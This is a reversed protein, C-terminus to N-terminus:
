CSFEATKAKEAEERTLYLDCTKIWPNRNHSPLFTYEGDEHAPYTGVVGLSNGSNYYRINNGNICYPCKDFDKSKCDGDFGRDKCEKIYNCILNSEM